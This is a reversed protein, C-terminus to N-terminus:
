SCDLESLTEKNILPSPDLYWKFGAKISGGAFRWKLPMIRQHFKSYQSPLKTIKIPDPGTNSLSGVDKHHKCSPSGSGGTRLEPDACSISPLVHIVHVMYVIEYSFSHSHGSFAVMRLNLHHPLPDLGGDGGGQFIM